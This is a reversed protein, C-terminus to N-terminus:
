SVGLFRDNFDDILRHANEVNGCRVLFNATLLDDNIEQLRDMLIKKEENLHVRVQNIAVHTHKNIKVNEGSLSM